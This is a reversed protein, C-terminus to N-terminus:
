FHTAHHWDFSDYDANFKLAIATIQDNESDARRALQIRLLRNNRFTRSSVNINIIALLEPADTEGIILKSM